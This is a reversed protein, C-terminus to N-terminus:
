WSCGYWSEMWAFVGPAPHLPLDWGRASETHRHTGTLTARGWSIASTSPCGPVVTSICDQYWSAPLMTAPSGVDGQPCLAPLAWTVAQKAQREASLMQLM